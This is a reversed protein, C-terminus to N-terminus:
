KKEFSLYLFFLHKMDAFYYHDIHKNYYDASFLFSSNCILPTMRISYMYTAIASAEILYKSAFHHSSLFNANFIFNYIFFVM